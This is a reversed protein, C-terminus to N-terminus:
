GLQSISRGQLVKQSPKTLPYLVWRETRSATLVEDDEDDEDETLARRILMPATYLM